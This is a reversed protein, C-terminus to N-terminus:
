KKEIAAAIRKASSYAWQLNYGGCKGDVDLIEGAFYLDAVKKSQLDDDVEKLPIGGKTVQAYDFGLSGKVPLPFAKILTVARRLDGNAAKMIARGLQNNVVGFLLESIPLEPFAARKKKLLAFIEEENFDPLFDAYLTDEKGAIYASIRFVADGSVGYDTFLIDGRIAIGKDSSCRLVGDSVRIGKLTKINVTDTKLQVSSPYLATISHGFKEALAYASGDTGFNKAAKGGTCVAVNDAKFVEKGKETEVTLLFGDRKEIDVVRSSLHIDVGRQAVCFRLADSLASAQRGTPYVRGREDAFLLVGLSSFFEDMSKHDFECVINQAKQLGGAVSFYGNETVSLNTVNGQGNGTASLKRGLRDGREFIIVKNKASLSCALFLGSAGGGIIATTKMGINYEM